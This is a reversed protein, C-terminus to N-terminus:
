DWIKLGYKEEKKDVYFLFPSPFLDSRISTLPALYRRMAASCHIMLQNIFELLQPQHLGRIVLFVLLLCLILIDLLSLFRGGMKPILTTMATRFITISVVFMPWLTGSRMEIPEFRWRLSVFSMEERLFHTPPPKVM